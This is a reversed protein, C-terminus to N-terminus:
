NGELMFIKVNSRESPSTVQGNAAIFFIQSNNCTFLVIATSSQEIDVRLDALMASLQNYSVPPPELTESIVSREDDTRTAEEYSPPSQVPRELVMNSGSDRQLQVIRNFIEKRFCIDRKINPVPSSRCTTCIIKSDLRYQNLRIVMILLVVVAM